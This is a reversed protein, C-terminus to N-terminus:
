LAVYSYYKSILQDLDQSFKLIKDRDLEEAVIKNLEDRKRHIEERLEEVRKDKDM